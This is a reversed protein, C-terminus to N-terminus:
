GAVLAPGMYEEGQILEYLYEVSCMWMDCKCGFVVSSGYRKQVDLYENILIIGYGSVDLM